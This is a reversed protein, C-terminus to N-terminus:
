WGLRDRFVSLAREIEVDDLVFVEANDVDRVPGDLPDAGLRANLLFRVTVDHVVALVDHADEALMREYGNLYRYLVDIRSEGEGPPPDSPTNAARWARYESVPRSEFVGLHVDDFQPYVEVPIDRGDLIIALSEGTRVFRTRIALDFHRGALADRAAACQRRGEDTLAVPISPDGNVLGRLNYDSQGHRLITFTRTAM